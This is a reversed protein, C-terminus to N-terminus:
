ALVAGCHRRVPEGARQDDGTATNSVLGGTDAVSFTFTVPGPDTAPATYSYVRTNGNGDVHRRGPLRADARERELEGPQDHQRERRHLQQDPRGHGNVLASASAGPHVGAGHAARDRTVTDFPVPQDGPHHDHVGDAASPWM